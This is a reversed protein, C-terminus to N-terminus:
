SASVAFASAARPFADDTAQADRTAAHELRVGTAADFVQVQSEDVPLHVADGPKLATRERSLVTVSHDGAQVLIQTESGTPEVVQIRFPIGSAALIVHEPRVGLTGPLDGAAMVDVGFTAGDDTIFAPGVVRQDIRGPLFIM